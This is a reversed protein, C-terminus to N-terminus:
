GPQRPFSDALRTYQAHTHTHTAPRDLLLSSADDWQDDIFFPLPSCTQRQCVSMSGHRQTRRAVSMASSGSSSSSSVRWCFSWCRNARFICSAPTAYNEFRYWRFERVVSTLSDNVKLSTGHLNKWTTRPLGVAPRKQHV